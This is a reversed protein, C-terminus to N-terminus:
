KKILIKKHAITNNNLQIQIIYIGKPLGQSHISETLIQKNNDKQKVLVGSQNYIQWKTIAVSSNLTITKNNLDFFVDLNDASLKEVATECGSNDGFMNADLWTMRKTVWNRLREVEENYTKPPNEVEPAGVRKNLIKWRNFHEIQPIEVLNYVSDIKEEIREDSLVTKRLQKYRCHVKNAFKTSELLRIYWDPCTTNFCNNIEHTWGAGNTNSVIYCESINKWAWDFDWVPGAKLMGGESDKNKHFYRSKKFGDNNRSVSNIIFYDIFSDEDIYDSYTDEFDDERLAAQFDDVFNKIYEKQEPAIKSAKPYHYNFNTRITPHAFANYDSYWSGQGEPRDVKFIYGGTLEDGSIEKKKLKDINVRNKGRKIKEALLYIGEYKGNIVVDCLRSRVSYHGMDRFLEFGLINRMLSKDNYNSLLVWDSGKPMGLLKVDKDEGKDDRTEFGYPRQPYNFSSAGRREIGIKGDFDNPEDDLGNVEGNGKFVIKMTADVKPEDVIIAGNTDIIVLPLTSGKFKYPPKYWAPVEQYDNSDDSIGTMLFFNSSLDSSNVNFNHVQVSFINEGDVLAEKIKQSSIIFSEPTGGGYMTAEHNETSLETLPPNAGSLGASRVVEVGNIWAIFADDYDAELVLKEIKSKDVINFKTRMCIGTCKSIVTNDDYDGFGIGGKGQKWSTADFNKSRWTDSPSGDNSTFYRYNANKNIIMEWHNITQAFSDTFLFAIILTTLYIYVKRM